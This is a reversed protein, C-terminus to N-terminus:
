PPLLEPNVCSRPPRGQALDLVTEVSLRWRAELGNVSYGAVHPTLVVNDLELLPNEPVPPEDELVDLGAGAIWRERLARLLATEDIVPGRSTNILIATPKMQRLEHEGILHRTEPTLPCHLSVYDAHTLLESLGAATAGQAAITEADVFPDHVLVNMEFGSLKRVVERAIHGFGVVGLTQGRISNLPQTSVKGWRGLRVARDLEAVRRTVAFLLAIAHDSAGDSMAAPTNAVLIKRQTAEDVPVNDTGSGTRLIARCRPVAALNGGLLVRSGGFLWVIEADRAHTALEARTACDQVVLEIGERELSERVWAPLTQGDLDVLAVKFPKTHQSM